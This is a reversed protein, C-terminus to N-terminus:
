SKRKTKGLFKSMSAVSHQFIALSNHPDSRRKGKLHPFIRTIIFPISNPVARYGGTTVITSINFVSCGPRQVDVTSNQSQTTQVEPSPGQLYKSYFLHGDFIRCCCLLVAKIPPLSLDTETSLKFLKMPNASKPTLHKSIGTLPPTPSIAAPLLLPMRELGSKIIIYRPTTETM